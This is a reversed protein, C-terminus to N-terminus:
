RKKFRLVDAFRRICVSMCVNIKVGVGCRLKYVEKWLKISRILNYMCSNFQDVSILPITTFVCMIFWNDYCIWIWSLLSFPFSELNVKIMDNPWKFMDIYRNYNIIQVYTYYLLLLYKGSPLLFTSWILAFSTASNERRM